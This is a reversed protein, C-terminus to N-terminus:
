SDADDNVELKLIGEWVIRRGTHVQNRWDRADVLPLARGQGLRDEETEPVWARLPGADERQRRAPLPPVYRLAETLSGAHRRELLIPSSPLCPKRGLFLPRVPERLAAELDALDPSGAAPELSVAVSYVADAHFDRFRVHTGVKNKVGGRRTDVVGRTTWGTGDLFPQGLSVTQYDRVREGERDCRVAYRIRDQLRTLASWDGHRYGLANGLLGTILSLSPFDAIAGRNDVIPGGFAQLPADFRLLLFEAM